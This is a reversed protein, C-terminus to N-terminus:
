DIGTLKFCPTTKQKRLQSAIATIEKTGLLLTEHQQQPSLQTLWAATSITLRNQDVAEIFENIGLLQIKKARRYIDKGGFGMLTAALVDTRGKVEDVFRRLELDNRQGQRKGLLKELAIGIAVRESILFLKTLEESNYKGSILDILSLRWAPITKKGLLKYAHLRNAGFILNNETDICIPKQLGYQQINNLLARMEDGQKLLHNASNIRSLYIHTTQPQCFTQQIPYSTWRKSFHALHPALEQWTIEGGMFYEIEFAYELPMNVGRNLWANINDATTGILKALKRRSGAKGIALLLPCGM